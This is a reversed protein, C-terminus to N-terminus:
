LPSGDVRQCANRLRWFGGVALDAKIRGSCVRPMGIHKSNSM